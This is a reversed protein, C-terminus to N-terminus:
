WWVIYNHFIDMNKYEIYWEKKLFMSQFSNYLLNDDKKAEHRQCWKWSKKLFKEKIISNWLKHKGYKCNKTTKYLLHPEKWYDIKPGLM